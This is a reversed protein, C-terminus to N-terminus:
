VRVGVVGHHLVRCRQGETGHGHGGAQHDRLERVQGSLDCGKGHGPTVPDGVPHNAPKDVAFHLASKTKTYGESDSGIQAIVRGSHPLYSLHNKFAAFGAITKGDLRFAPVGYSIGQEATPVIAIITDRLDALTSRKPEDLNSLYADIESKSMAGNELDGDSLDIQPTAQQGCSRKWTLRRKRGIVANAVNSLASGPHMLHSAM